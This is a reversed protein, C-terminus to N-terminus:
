QPNSIVLSAEAVGVLRGHQNTGKVECEVIKRGGEERKATVSGTFTVTDGPRFPEIAKYLLRGNDYFASAPFWQELMQCIYAMTTVGANVTGGFMGSKAFEPDTHINRPLPEEDDLVLRSSNITEQTEEITFPPLEDGPNISEFTIGRTTDTAM